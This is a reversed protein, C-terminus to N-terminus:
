RLTPPDAAGELVDLQEAFLRHEVVHQRAKVRMMNVADARRDDPDPRHPTDLVLRRAFRGRQEFRELESASAVAGTRSRGNPM